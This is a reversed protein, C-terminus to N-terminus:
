TTRLASLILFSKLLPSFMLYLSKREFFKIFLRLLEFIFNTATRQRMKHERETAKPCDAGTVTEMEILWVMVWVTLVDGVTVFVTLGEELIEAVTDVETELENDLETELEYELETEFENDCVTVLVM